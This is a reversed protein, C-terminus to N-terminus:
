GVAYRTKGEAVQRALEQEALIGMARTEEDTMGKSATNFQITPLIPSAGTVIRALNELGLGARMAMGSLSPKSVISKALAKVNDIFGGLLSGSSKAFDIDHERAIFDSQDVPELGAKIKNYYDTGPGM